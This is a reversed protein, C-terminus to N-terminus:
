RITVDPLNVRHVTCGTGHRTGLFRSPREPAGVAPDGEGQETAPKDARGSACASRVARM